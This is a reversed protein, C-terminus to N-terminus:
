KNVKCLCPPGKNKINRPGNVEDLNLPCSDNGEGSAQQVPEAVSLLVLLVGLLGIMM